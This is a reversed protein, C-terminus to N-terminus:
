QTEGQPMGHWEWTGWTGEDRGKHLSSHGARCDKQPSIFIEPFGGGGGMGHTQSAQLLFSFRLSLSFIDVSCASLCSAYCVFFVSKANKKSAKRFTLTALGLYQSSVLSNRLQNQASANNAQSETRGIQVGEGSVLVRQRDLM